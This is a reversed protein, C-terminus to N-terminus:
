VFVAMMDFFRFSSPIVEKWCQGVCLLRQQPLLGLVGDRSIVVVVFVFVSTYALNEDM